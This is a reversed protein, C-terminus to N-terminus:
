IRKYGYITYLCEGTKEYPISYKHMIELFEKEANHFVKKYALHGGIKEYYQPKIKVWEIEYYLLFNFSEEDYSDYGEVDGNLSSFYPTDDKEYILKFIYPPQFPMENIMANRFENWKTNNMYSVLQHENIYKLAETKREALYVEQETM